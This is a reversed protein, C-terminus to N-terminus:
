FDLRSVDPLPPLVTPTPESTSLPEAEKGADDGSNDKLKQSIGQLLTMLETNSMSDIDIDQSSVGVYSIMLMIPFLLLLVTCRTIMRMIIESM